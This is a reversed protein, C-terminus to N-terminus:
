DLCSQDAQSYKRLLLLETFPDRIGDVKHTHEREFQVLARRSENGWHGDAGWKPLCDPRWQLLALQWDRATILSRASRQRATCLVRLTQGPCAAKGFDFHGFYGAGDFSFLQELWRTAQRWRALQSPSPDASTGRRFAESFDGMVLISALHRNEDGSYEPHRGDDSKGQSWTASALDNALIVQEPCVKDSIVLTYLLGPCGDASVHNPGVHYAATRAPDQNHSASHHTCVGLIDEPKRKRFRKTEHQPLVGRYDALWGDLIAEGVAVEVDGWDM